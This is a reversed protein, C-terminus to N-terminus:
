LQELMLNSQSFSWQKLNQVQDMYLAHLSGEAAGRSHECQLSSGQSDWLPM